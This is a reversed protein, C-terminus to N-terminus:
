SRHVCDIIIQSCKLLLRHRNTFMIPVLSRRDTSRFKIPSQHINSDFDTLIPTMPQPRLNKGKTMQLKVVIKPTRDRDVHEAIQHNAVSWSRCKCRDRDVNEDIVSHNELNYGIVIWMKMSLSKDGIVISMKVLWQTIRWQDGDVHEGILSRDEM